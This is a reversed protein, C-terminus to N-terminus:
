VKRAKRFYIWYRTIICTALHWSWQYVLPQQFEMRVCLVNLLQILCYSLVIHLFTNWYSAYRGSTSLIVYYGMYRPPTQRVGRSACGLDHSRHHMSPLLGGEIHVSHCVPTFVNGQGLSRKRATFMRVFCDYSFHKVCYVLLLPNTWM